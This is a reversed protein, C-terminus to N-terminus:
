STRQVTIIELYRAARGGTPGGRELGPGQAEYIVGGQVIQADRVIGARYRLTFVSLQEFIAVDQESQFEASRDRRAAWVVFGWTPAEAPDTEFRDVGDPREYIDRIWARLTLPPPTYAPYRGPM